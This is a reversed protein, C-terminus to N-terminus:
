PFNRKMRIEITFSFLRRIHRLIDQVLCAKKYENLWAGVKELYRKNKENQKELLHERNKKYYEKDYARLYARQTEVGKYPM